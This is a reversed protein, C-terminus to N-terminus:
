EDSGVMRGPSQMEGPSVMQYEDTLPPEDAQRGVPENSYEYTRESSYSSSQCGTAALGFGLAAVLTLIYSTARKM